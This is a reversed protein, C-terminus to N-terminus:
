LYMDNRILVLYVLKRGLTVASGRLGRRLTMWEQGMGLSKVRKWNLRPLNSLLDDMEESALPEARGVGTVRLSKWARGCLGESGFLHLYQIFATVVIVGVAGKIARGSLNSGGVFDSRCMVPVELTRSPPVLVPTRLVQGKPIRRFPLALLPQATNNSVFPVRPRSKGAKTALVATRRSLVGIDALSDDDFLRMQSEFLPYVIWPGRQLPKGVRLEPVAFPM